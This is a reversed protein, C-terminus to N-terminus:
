GAAMTTLNDVFGQAGSTNTVNPMTVDGYINIHVTENSGNQQATTGDFNGPNAINDKILAENDIVAKAAADLTDYGPVSFPSFRNFFQIISKILQPVIETIASIIMPLITFIDKLIVPLAVLAGMPNGTMIAGIATAWAGGSEIAMTTLTGGIAAVHKLIVPATEKAFQLAGKAANAAQQMAQQKKMESTLDVDYGAWAVYNPKQDPLKGIMSGVAEIVPVWTNFDQTESMAAAAVAQALVGVAGVWENISNGVESIKDAASKSAEAAAKNVSATGGILKAADYIVPAFDENALAAANAMADAIGELPETGLANQLAQYTGESVVTADVPNNAADYIANWDDNTLVMEPKGTHNYYTGYGGPTPELIGGQDYGMGRGWNTTLDGGYTARYYRLAGNMNAWPDFRDDPLSPDRVGPWTGKAIQLLGAAENGGTNVDIVQQVARPNGSSESNIQRMMADVQAPDDANFGNRRMAEIAMARWSEVNGSMGPDALSRMSAAALPVLKDLLGNRGKDISKPIWEGIGGAIKPAREMVSDMKANIADRVMQDIPVSPGTGAGGAQIGAVGNANFLAHIHDYHNQTISGRDDMMNGTGGAPQYFQKWITYNLALADKQAHLWANVETGVPDGTMIDLALGSPHDPYADYARYGGITGIEPWYKHINRRALIAAPQLNSEGGGGIWAPATIDVPGGRAFAPLGRKWSARAQEIAGHGGAGRVEAATIVHEGNAVRALISDSTGTGAGRIAGGDAFRAVQENLAPLGLFDNFQNWAGRIGDNYVDNIVFRAPVAVKENIGGWITGINDVTQAFQEELTLLMPNFAEFVPRIGDNFITGINQSMNGFQTTVGDNTATMAALLTNGLNQFLQIVTGSMTTLTQTVGANMTVFLGVTGNSFATLTTTVSATFTATQVTGDAYMKKLTASFETSIGAYIAGQTIAFQTTSATMYSVYADWSAQAEATMTAMDVPLTSLGGVASTSAPTTATGEAFAPIPGLAASPDYLGSNIAPLIDSYEAAYKAAVVFEKDSLRTLISDSTTSGPGSVWGGDAYQMVEDYKAQGHLKIYLDKDRMADQKAWVKTGANWADYESGGAQRVQEAAGRIDAMDAIFKLRIQHNANEDLFKQIAAQAEPTDATLKTLIDTPILGYTDALRIAAEIPLGADTAQQIFTDRVGQAQKVAAQVAADASLGADLAQQYASAGAEDFSTQVKKMQDYMKSGAETTTNIQGNSLIMSESFGELVAPTERMVQNLKQTTDEAATTESRFKSLGTTLIGLRTTVDDTSQMFEILVDNMPVAPITINSIQGAIRMAADAVDGQKSDLGEVFGEGTYEGLEETVKSPSFIKLVSKIAGPVSDTFFGGIKDKLWGGMDKIGNWFGEIVNKGLENINGLASVIKGPIEIFFKIVNQVWGPMLGIIAGFAKYFVDTLMQHLSALGQLIKGPLEWFFNWIAQIFDWIFSLVKGPLSLFWDVIGNIMDPVISHGVLEDWLWLFFDFIGKVFGWVVNRILVFANTFLSYVTDWVSQVIDIIGGFVNQIGEWIKAGDLTFVGIIIQAFGGLVRIVGQIFEIIAGIVDGIFSFAPGIAGNVVEWIISAVATLTGLIVVGLFKLADFLPQMHTGLEQLKPGITEWMGMLGNKVEKISAQMDPGFLRGLMGFFSGVVRTTNGWADGLKQIVTQFRTMEGEPAAFGQGIVAGLDTFMTAFPGMLPGFSRKIWDMAKNWWDKIPGFMDFGGLGNGLDQALQEAYNEMDVSQDFEGGERGVTFASGADEFDGKGADLFNQLGPSINEEGEGKAEKAKRAAEEARQIAADAATVLDNLATEGDRISTEISDYVDKMTSLKDNEMDYTAGLSDRAAQAEKIALEQGSVAQNAKDLAATYLDVQTSSGALGAMITGFPLEETKNTFQEIQRNLPDFKLSKELDMIEAQKQLADLQGQLTDVASTTEGSGNGLADQQAKLGAIMADYPGLIDSGAGKSRLESQRGSLDEIQGQLKSYADTATDIADTEGMKAIQLQLRKQAMENAFIEDEAERLGSIQANAFRDYSAKALDLSASARDAVEKMADLTENMGDINKDAAEVAASLRDVALQQRDIADEASKLDGKMVDVSRRLNDYAPLAQPAQSAVKGRSEGAQFDAENQLTGAAAQGFQKMAGYMDLMHGKVVGAAAGFKDGVVQMGKTVNEVLSPSHRAFPNIYSFLEYIKMAAVRIIAVVKLLANKISDPLANFVRNILRGISGFINAFFDRINSLVNGVPALGDRVQQPMNRFYAVINDFVRRISDGFLVLLGVVVAIAIGVPGFLLPVLRLMLTKVVGLLKLLGTRWLMLTTALLKATSVIWATSFVRQIVLMAASWGAQLMLKARGYAAQIATSATEFAVQATLTAAHWAARFSTLGLALGINYARYASAWVVFIALMLAHHARAAAIEIAQFTANLVRRAVLFAREYAYLIAHWGRALVARTNYYATELALQVAAWAELMVHRSAYYAATIANMLTESVLMLTTMAAYFGRSVALRLRAYIIDLALRLNHVSHSTAIIAIELAADAANFITKLVLRAAYFARDKALMAASGAGSIALMATAQAAALGRHVAYYATTLATQIAQTAIMASTFLWMAATGIRGSAVVALIGQGLLIMGGRALLTSTHLAWVAISGAYAAISMGALAARNVFLAVTFVRTIMALKSLIVFPAALAPGLLKLPALPLLMMRGLFMFMPALQGVALKMLGLVIILPGLVSLVLATVIVLKQVAPHLATFNEFMKAVAQAIWIFIPILPAFADTLNNKIIQGVTKIKQGSTGLVTQLEKQAIQHVKAEDNVVAMAKAYYGLPNQLSEMLVAFKNIHYRSAILASAAEKQGQTLTVFEDSMVQLREAATLSQWSTQDVAIGMEMMVDRAEETPTLLRSIMTKLSTGAESATGAAPTLASVMAALEGTTVGAQRAVGAARSFAVVLDNLKTGTVNEVANLQEIIHVLGGTKDKTGDISVGLGDISAGYQAQIAILARTAETAEMEGIVMTRMTLATSKALALGSSGAAAWDGAVDLVAKKNVGFSESLQTAVKDLAKMENAYQRTAAGAADYPSTDGLQKQKEVLAAALTDTDGYLKSVRALATENEIGWKVAMGAAIGLPLSLNTTLQRGVWQLRSGSKSMNGFFTGNSAAQAAVTRQTLVGVSNGLAAVRAQAPTLTTFMPRNSTAQLLALRQELQVLRTQMSALQAQAAAANVRILINLEAQTM